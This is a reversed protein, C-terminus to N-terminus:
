VPMDYVSVDAAGTNHLGAQQLFHCCKVHVPRPVIVSTCHVLVMRLSIVTLFYFVLSVLILQDDDIIILKAVHIIFPETFFFNCNNRFLRSHM